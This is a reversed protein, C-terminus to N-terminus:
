ETMEWPWGTDVGKELLAVNKFTADSLGGFEHRGTSGTPTLGTRYSGLNFGYVPVHRPVVNDVNAGHYGGMTQMDSVIFVRNHRDRHFQRRVAGHIDTGHGVEGVRAMFDRTLKLTSDGVRVEHRFEGSAFGMLDVRGANRVSLAVGFLAAAQIPTMKSRKDFVGSTMSASTDVLVLSRGSLEPLNRMSHSLAAELASVFSLGHVEQYASWFRFPFQRSKVVEDPDGLRTAVEVLEAPTLGAEELNRLNRLLAMYGLQPLVLKWQDRKDVPRRVGAADGLVSHLWEWQGAMAQSYLNGELGDRLALRALDHRQQSTMANIVRRANVAALTRPVPANRGHRENLAHRYLDGQWDGSAKPHVLDVVDAFRFSKSASDYRLYGRETYLRRVADAVGRKLPQPLKRGYTAIWYALLEGPEDARQLVADVVRRNWGAVTYAHNGVPTVGTIEGRKLAELRAHVFEAAGVLSATRLNGEPGRLWKLLEFTWAPDSVALQRVLQAYRNDRNDASEYFTNQGVMNVVALQFLESKADRIYGLGGEHTTSTEGTTRVSSTARALRHGSAYLPDFTDIRETPKNFRAM